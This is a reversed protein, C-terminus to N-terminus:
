NNNYLYFLHIFDINFYFMIAEGGYLKAERLGGREDNNWTNLDSKRSSVKSFNTKEQCIHPLYYRTTEPPQILRCTTVFNM